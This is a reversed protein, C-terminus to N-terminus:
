MGFTKKKMGKNNICRIFNNDMIKVIYRRWTHFFNEYVKKDLFFFLIFCLKNYIIGMIIQLMELKVTLYFIFCLFIIIINKKIKATM